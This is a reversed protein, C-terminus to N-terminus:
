LRSPFGRHFKTFFNPWRQQEHYCFTYCSCYVTYAVWVWEVWRQFRICACRAEIDTDSVSIYFFKTLIFFDSFLFV